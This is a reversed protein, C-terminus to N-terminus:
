DYGVNNICSCIMSHGAKVQFVDMATVNQQRGEQAALAIETWAAVNETGVAESLKSLESKAELEQKKAREYKAM